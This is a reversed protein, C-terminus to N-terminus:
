TNGQLTFDLKIENENKKIYFRISKPLTHSGTNKKIWNKNKGKTVVSRNVVQTEKKKKKETNGKQFEVNSM